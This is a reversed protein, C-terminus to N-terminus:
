AHTQEMFDLTEAFTGIGDAAGVSSVCMAGVANALRICHHLDMGGQSLGALFGAAFADGAGTTDAVQVTRGPSHIERNGVVALSGEEGLTVVVLPARFRRSLKHMAKGLDACGTFDSPFAQAAIIVDVETLVNEIKPRVREVDIVTPIRNKRAIGVARTAAEVEGCDVLLIRGSTVAEPRVDATRLRLAPDRQWLITRDGNQQDVVIIAFQNKTGLCTRCGSVDVGAGVLASRSFEGNDDGGFNGIYRSRWGLKACAAMATAAQGGAFRSLTEAPHKHNLRLPGSITAVLDVSNLGLGVVDFARGDAPPLSMDFKVSRSALLLDCVGASEVPNINAKQKRVSANGTRLGIQM